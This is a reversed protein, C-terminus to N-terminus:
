GKVVYYTGKIEKIIGALQLTTLCMNLQNFGISVQRYLTNFNTPDRRLVNLIQLSEADINCTSFANSSRSLGLEENIDCGSFVPKAGERLIQCIGKTSDKFIDGPVALIRRSYSKAYNYTILSGSKEGAEVFLIAKCLGAVIRNRKVFMWERPPENGVFESVISGGGCLIEEYLNRSSYPYMEEIGCPLVAVTPVGHAVALSHATFDVGRTFGSVVALDTCVLDNFLYELVAAGYPTMRRSGVIGLCNHLAALNANGKIYLNKPPNPIGKLLMPYRCDEMAICITLYNQPSM